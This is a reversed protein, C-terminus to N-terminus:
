VAGRPTDVSAIHEIGEALGLLRQANEVHLSEILKGDVLVVGKGAAAAAAHAAIIRRSWEIEAASPAFAANAPGIQTPHILTKGDFGLERGQRCVLAFGEEDSLDPHVGDLIALGHARAALMALGLATILPLRDRTAVAHLDKTLDSTGLVLVALRPSAAAIERAELIGLPTEIMCWVDLREPAGLADLLSVSVRVRDASEVKPLLVADIPLTAAAALDAHGWPTDLPNVRLVLERAGYAGAALAAAIIARAGEKAEAAVADELDIILGDASLGRANELARPNSGPIYLLSRRPRFVAPM